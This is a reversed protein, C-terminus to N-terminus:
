NKRYIGKFFLKKSYPEFLSEVNNDTSTNLDFDTYQNLFHIKEYLTKGM